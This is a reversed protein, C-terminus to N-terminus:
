PEPNVRLQALTYIGNRLLEISAVVLVIGILAARLWGSPARVAAGIV